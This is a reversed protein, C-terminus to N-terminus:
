ASAETRCEDDYVIRKLVLGCAPATVGIHRRDQAALIAPVDQVAIRGRGVGVLLGMSNRVMQKLFGDAQFTWCLEMGAECTGHLDEPSRTISYVTRVSSLIAAGSNRLSAFDQKGEMLRAAADMADVDLPGCAWVFPYLWPPTCRRSLWLRYAYFKRLASFQAHFSAPVREVAMVRIAPPLSTNFALQWDMYARHQPVDMHAVQAEAHVGADTRGAGHVHVKRRCVRSVVDELLNQVTILKKNPHLQTQWGHFSTGVYAVTLKFRCTEEAPISEEVM